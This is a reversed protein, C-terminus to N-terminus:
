IWLLHINILTHFDLTPAGLRIRVASNSNAARASLAMMGYIIGDVM